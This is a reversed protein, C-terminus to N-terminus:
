PSAGTIAFPGYTRQLVMGDTASVRQNVQYSGVSLGPFSVEDGPGSPLTGQSRGTATQILEWDIISLHGVPESRSTDRCVITSPATRCQGGIYINAIVNETPSSKRCAALSAAAALVLATRVVRQRPWQFRTM